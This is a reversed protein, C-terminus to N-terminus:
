NQDWNSTGKITKLKVSRSKGLWNSSQWSIEVEITATYPVPDYNSEDAKTVPSVTVRGVAHRLGMKEDRMRGVWQTCDGEVHVHSSYNSCNDAGTVAGTNIGHYEDPRTGSNNRIRDIMEEALQVALSSDKSFKNGSIATTQMSAASMMGVTLLFLSILVEILTFGKENNIDRKM